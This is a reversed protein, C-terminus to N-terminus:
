AVKQKRSELLWDPRKFIEDTNIRIYSHYIEINRSELYRRYYEYQIPKVTAKNQLHSSGM